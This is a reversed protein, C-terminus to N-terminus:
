PAGGAGDAGGAGGAGGSAERVVMSDINPGSAGKTTLQVSNVGQALTVDSATDSAWNTNWSGTDNFPLSSVAVGNVKLTMSRKQAEAYVFTLTYIGARPVDLVWNVAGESGFMDAFGLDTWGSGGSALGAAGSMLAREAECTTPADAALSCIPPSVVMSDFNAGSDGNTELVIQNTGKTLLVKQAGGTTWATYWNGTNTFTVSEVQHTCNVSLRMDREAAQTYTWNLVYEGGAPVDLLWTMGGESAKMDAFGSGSWGSGPSAVVASGSLSAAEAEILKPGLLLGSFDVGGSAPVTCGPTGGSGASGADGGVGATGGADTGGAGGGSGGSGGSGGTGASGASGSSGGLVSAGATGAQGAGGNGALSGGSAMGSVGSTSGASGSDGGDEAGAANSTGGIAYEPPAEDDGCAVLCGAAVALAPFIFTRHLRHLSASTSPHLAM